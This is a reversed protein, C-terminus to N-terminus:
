FGPQCPSATSDKPIPQVMSIDEPAPPGAAVYDRTYNQNVKNMSKDTGSVEPETNKSKSDGKFLLLECKCGAEVGGM